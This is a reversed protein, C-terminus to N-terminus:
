IFLIILIYYCHFICITLFGHLPVHPKLEALFDKNRSKWNLKIIHTRFTIIFRNNDEKDTHRDAQTLTVGVSHTNKWEKNPSEVSRLKGFFLDFWAKYLYKRLNIIEWWSKDNYILCFGEYCIIQPQLVLQDHLMCSQLSRTPIKFNLVMAQTAACYDVHALTYSTMEVVNFTIGRYRLNVQM